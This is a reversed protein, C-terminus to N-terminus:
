RGTSNHTKTGNKNDGFHPSHRTVLAVGTAALAFGLISGPALHQDLLPVGALATVPPVLFLYSTASAGPQRKLLLFLLVFAAISGVLALWTVTGIAVPTLPLAFGGSVATLPTIGITAAVMQLFMGTRMDMHDGFRKQYLTGGASGALGGIAALIGTITGFGALDTSVAASVGAFGLVLGVIQWPRLREAFLPVAAAAVVLPTADTILSTLGASVGLQLALFVGAFQCTQLLFGTIFLHIWAAPRRPWPARSLLVIAGLVATAVLFRWFGLTGPAVTRTGISGVIFGSSWVCTFLVAFGIRWWTGAARSAAPRGATSSETSHPSSGM